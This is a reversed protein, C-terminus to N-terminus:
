GVGVADGGVITKEAGRLAPLNNVQIKDLALTSLIM